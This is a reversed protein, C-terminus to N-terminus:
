ALWDCILRTTENPCEIPLFHGAGEIVKLTAHQAMHQIQRHQDVPSWMDEDGAILLIPCTLEPLYRSADPRAILAKIQREHIDSGVSMAMDTLNRILATDNHRSAAVMPPLWEAIMASFDRHGDDIKALRKDREGDKLPHHGTNALVLKAVRSPAQWAMEMAVRGGMSHGVVICDGEVNQLIRSAMASITDDKTVDAQHIRLHPLARELPQWVREDSLLGPILVLTSSLESKEIAMPSATTM